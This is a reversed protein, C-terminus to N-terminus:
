PIIKKCNINIFLCLAFVFITGQNKSEEPLM